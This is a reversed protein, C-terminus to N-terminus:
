CPAKAVYITDMMGIYTPNETICLSNNIINPNIMTINFEIIVAIVVYIM